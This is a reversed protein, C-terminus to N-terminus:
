LGKKLCIKIEKRLLESNLRAMQERKFNIEYQYKEELYVEWEGITPKSTGIHVINQKLKIEAIDVAKLISPADNFSSM